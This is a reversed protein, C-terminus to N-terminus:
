AAFSTWLRKWLRYPLAPARLTQSALHLESFLVWGKARLDKEATKPLGFQPTWDEHCFLRFHWFLMDGGSINLVFRKLKEWRSIAVPPEVWVLDAHCGFFEEVWM